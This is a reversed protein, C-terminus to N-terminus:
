LCNLESQLLIPAHLHNLPRDQIILKKIQVVMVFRPKLGRKTLHIIVSFVAKM